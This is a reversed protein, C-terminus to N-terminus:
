RIGIMYVSRRKPKANRTYRGIPYRPPTARISRATRACKRARMVTGYTRGMETSKLAGRDVRRHRRAIGGNAAKTTTTRTETTTPAGNMLRGKGKQARSTRVFAVFRDRAIQRHHRWEFSTARLLYFTLPQMIHFRYRVRPDRTYIHIYWM